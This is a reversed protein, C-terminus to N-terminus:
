ESYTVKAGIGLQVGKEDMNWMNEQKIHFEEVVAELVDYFGDVATQNLAKAQCKELSM